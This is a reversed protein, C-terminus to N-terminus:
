WYKGSKPVGQSGQEVQLQIYKSRDEQANNILAEAKQRDAQKAQQQKDYVGTQQQNQPSAAKLEGALDQKQQENRGAGNQQQNNENGKQDKNQQNKNQQDKGQDSKKDNSEQQQKDNQQNKDGTNCQKQEQDKKQQEQKKKEEEIKRLSLELNCRSNIDAPNLRLAEKYFNVASNMDGAQFATNGLNFAAKFKMQNDAARRYVSAFAESAAKYDKLQYAACGKDFRYALEKPYEMGLRDYGALAEKFKGERYMRDPHEAAWASSFAALMLLGALFLIKVSKM